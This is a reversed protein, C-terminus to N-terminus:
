NFPTNKNAPPNYSNNIEIYWPLLANFINAEEGPPVKTSIKFSIDNLTPYLEMFRPLETQSPKNDQKPTNQNHYDLYFRVTISYNNISIFASVPIDKHNGIQIERNTLNNVPSLGNVATGVKLKIYQNYAFWYLPLILIIYGILKLIAILVTGFFGILWYVIVGASAILLFLFTINVIVNDSEGKGKKVALLSGIFTIAALIIGAIGKGGEFIKATTETNHATADLWGEEKKSLSKKLLDYLSDAKLDVTVTDKASKIVVSLIAAKKQKGLTDPKILAIKKEPTDSILKPRSKVGPQASTNKQHDEGAGALYSLLMAVCLFGIKAKIATIKM